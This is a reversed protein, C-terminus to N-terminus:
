FSFICFIRNVADIWSMQKPTKSPNNGIIYKEPKKCGGRGVEKRSVQAQRKSPARKGPTKNKGERLPALKAHWHRSSNRKWSLSIPNRQTQDQRYAWRSRQQGSAWCQPRPLFLIIAATAGLSDVLIECPSVENIIRKFVALAAGGLDGKLRGLGAVLKLSSYHHLPNTCFLQIADSVFTETLSRWLASTYSGSSPSWECSEGPKACVKSGRYSREPFKAGALM